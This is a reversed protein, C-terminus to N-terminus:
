KPGKTWSHRCSVMPLQPQGNGEHTKENRNKLLVDEGCADKRYREDVYAFADIRDAFEPRLFGARYATSQAWPFGDRTAYKGTAFCPYGGFIRGRV